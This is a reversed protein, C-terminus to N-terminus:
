KEEVDGIGPKNLQAHTQKLCRFPLYKSLQNLESKKNKIANGDAIAWIIACVIILLALVSAAVVCYSSVYNLHGIFGRYFKYKRITALSTPVIVLTIALAITTFTVFPVLADQCTDQLKDIQRLKKGCDEKCKIKRYKKKLAEGGTDETKVPDVM